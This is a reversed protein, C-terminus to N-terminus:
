RGTVEVDTTQGAKVTITKANPDKGQLAPGPNTAMASVIYEGPPVNEFQFTGDPNTDGSAGWKGLRDRLEGPPEIDVNGHAAPQGARNIVRGKIAGTETLHITLNEEPISHLKLVELMLYHKGYAFLQTHGRPLGRLLFHGQADTETQRREPLIYGRGDVSTVSDARVTAGAVPRGDTDVAIGALTAEPSLQATFRKLTDGRFEAYGLMRPAYGNACAIIGFSGKPVAHLVFHGSADAVGSAVQEWVNEGKQRSVAIKAGGVPKSTTLDFVDGVVASGDKIGNASAREDIVSIGSPVNVKSFDIGSDGGVFVDIRPPDITAHFGGNPDEASFQSHPDNYLHNWSAPNWVTFSWDFRTSAKPVKEDKLFIGEAPGGDHVFLQLKPAKIKAFTDLAQQFAQTDGRYQFNHQGGGFPPGEWWGVRTKLNAVDVSGAPWNHDQVPDNGKGVMILAMAPAAWLAVFLGTLTGAWLVGRTQVSGIM